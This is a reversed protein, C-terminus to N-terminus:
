KTIPPAWANENESRPRSHCGPAFPLAGEPASGRSVAPTTAPSGARRELARDATRSNERLKLNAPNCCEVIAKEGPFGQASGHLRLSLECRLKAHRLGGDGQRESGTLVVLLRRGLSAQRLDSAPAPKKRAQACSAGESFSAVANAQGVQDGPRCCPVVSVQWRVPAEGSCCDRWSLM